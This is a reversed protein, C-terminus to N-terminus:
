FFKFLFINEKFFTFNKIICKLFDIMLTHVATSKMVSRETIPDLKTMM